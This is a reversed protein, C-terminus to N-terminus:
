PLFQFNKDYVWVMLLILLFVYLLTWLLFEVGHGYDRDLKAMICKNKAFIYFNYFSDFISPYKM